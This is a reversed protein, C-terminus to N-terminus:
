TRDLRTLSILLIGLAMLAEQKRLPHGQHGHAGIATREMHSTNLFVGSFLLHVRGTSM